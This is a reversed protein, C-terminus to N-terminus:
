ERRPLVSPSNNMEPPITMSSPHGLILNKLIFILKEPGLISFDTRCQGIPITHGQTYTHTHRCTFTRMHAYRPTYKPSIHTEMCTYSHMHTHTCTLVYKHIDYHSSITATILHHNCQFTLLRHPQFTPRKISSEVQLFQRILIVSTIVRLLLAPLMPM